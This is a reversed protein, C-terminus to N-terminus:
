IKFFHRRAYVSPDTYLAVNIFEIHLQIVIMYIYIFATDVLYLCILIVAVSM